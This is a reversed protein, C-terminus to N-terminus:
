LLLTNAFSLFTFILSLWSWLALCALPDYDPRSSPMMMMENLNRGYSIGGYTITYVPFFYQLSSNGFRPLMITMYPDTPHGMM